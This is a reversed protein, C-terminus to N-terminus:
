SCRRPRARASWCRTPRSPPAWASPRSAARTWRRTAARAAPRPPAPPPPPAPAGRARTHTGQSSALRPAPRRRRRRRRRPPLPQPAARRLGFPPRRARARAARVAPPARRDGGGARPPHGRAARRPLERPGGVSAQARQARTRTRTRTKLPSPRSTQGACSAPACPGPPMSGGRAGRRAAARAMPCRRRGTTPACRARRPPTGTPGRWSCRRPPRRRLGRMHPAGRWTSRRGNRAAPAVGARSRRVQAFVDTFTGGRDISFHFDRGTM